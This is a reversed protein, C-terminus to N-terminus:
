GCFFVRRSVQFEARRVLVRTAYLRMYAIALHLTESRLVFQECVDILRRALSLSPSSLSLSVCVGPRFPNTTRDIRLRFLFM